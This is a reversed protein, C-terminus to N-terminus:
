SPPPLLGIEAAEGLHEKGANVHCCATSVKALPTRWERIRRRRHELHGEGADRRRQDDAGEGLADLERREHQEDAQPDGEDVERDGVHNTRPRGLKRGIWPRIEAEAREVEGAARDNVDIGADGAQDARQHDALADAVPLVYMAGCLEISETIPAESSHTPQNPKM